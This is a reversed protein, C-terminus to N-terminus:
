IVLMTKKVARFGGPERENDPHESSRATLPLSFGDGQGLRRSKAGSAWRWVGKVAQLM